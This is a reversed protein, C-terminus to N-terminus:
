QRNAADYADLLERLRAVAKQKNAHQSRESMVRVAIGTPRHIVLVATCQKAVHQGGRQDPHAALCGALFELDSDNM